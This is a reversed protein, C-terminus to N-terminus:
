STERALTFAEHREVMDGTGEDKVLLALDYTGDALGAIPFGLLRVLRGGSDPAIATVPSVLAPHGDPAFLEFGAVVNSTAPQKGATAGFVEFQCFLQGEPRFVRHVALLATPKVGSKDVKDTVIPTSVHLGQPPPVVVRQLVSGLAGGTLDRVAVRVQSVGVPLELERSLGRWGPTEGEPVRIEV